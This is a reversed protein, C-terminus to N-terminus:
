EGTSRQNVGTREPPSAEGAAIRERVRRVEAAEDRSPARSEIQTLYALAEAKRGQRAMCRGAREALSVYLGGAAAPYGLGRQYCEVAHSVFGFAEYGLGLHYYFPQEGGSPPAPDLTELDPVPGPVRRSFPRDRHPNRYVVVDSGAGSRSRFEREKVFRQDLSDYFALQRKFRARDERYRDRVAGTVIVLDADEYLRPDYFRASRAPGVQFMPIPLVAYLKPEYGRTQLAYRLDPDWSMLDTPSLLAPGLQEMAIMSGVPVNAEIWAKAETRPDSVLAREHKVYDIATPLALIVTVIPVLAPRWGSAPKAGIREVLRAVLSAGFVAGMPILPFLYRDAKMSWSGIVLVFPAFFGLLILAWRERRVATFYVLGALSALGLPAGLISTFWDIAYFAWAKGQESGFHGLRMHEREAGIDRLFASANLIVFPSTVFFAVGIALLVVILARPASIPPAPRRPRPAKKAAAERARAKSGRRAHSREPAAARPTPPTAEPTVTAPAAGKRAILAIAILASSAVFIGPYKASAALGIALGLLAANAFTPTEALRVAFLTACTTFLVLPVDVEISQSKAILPASLAVLLGAPIAAARGAVRRALAYTPIVCAAGLIAIIGRGVLYFPTKDLQYLARFDLASAIRGTITLAAYLFAQGLFQLDIVLTPYKFFHPNPDFVRNAGWGWMEWAVRFPTAEEYVEPLGWGIGHLRLALATLTIGTVWILDRRKAQLPM